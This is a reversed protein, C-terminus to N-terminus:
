KDRIIDVVIKVDHAFAILGSIFFVWVMGEGWDPSVQLHEAISMLIMLIAIM